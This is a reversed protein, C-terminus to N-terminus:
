SRQAVQSEALDELRNMENQLQLRIEEVKAEDADEPVTFPEGFILLAKAFPHPVMYCDWSRRARMCPSAAIGVPILKAGSKQAMLMIGGQVVHSPGRPGDPTMAMTGGARLARIAEIAARVGGRGTSGRITRYGLRVFVYNQLDGDRSHSIVVWYGRKRFHNGFIFSRGHWGCIISKSDDVPFNVVETRLSSGISRLIFYLCGRLLEPRVNRWRQRIMEVM